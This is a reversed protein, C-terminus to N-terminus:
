ETPTSRGAPSLRGTEAVSLAGAEVEGAISLAGPVVGCREVIAAVSRALQAKLTLQLPGLREKLEHLVPLSSRTGLVGLREVVLRLIEPDNSRQGLAMWAREAPEGEAWGILGPLAGHLEPHVALLAAAQCRAPEPAEQLWSVIEQRQEPSRGPTLAAELWDEPSGHELLIRRALPPHVDSMLARLVRERLPDDTRLAAELLWQRDALEASRLLQEIRRWPDRRARNLALRLATAQQEVQLRRSAPGMWRLTLQGEQLVVRVRLGELKQLADRVAGNVRALDPLSGRAGRLGLRDLTLTGTELEYELRGEFIQESRPPRHPPDQRPPPPLAPSEPPWVIWLCLGGVSLLVIALVGLTV